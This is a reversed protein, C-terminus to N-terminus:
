LLHEDNMLDFITKVPAFTRAPVEVFVTNWWAMSGNWLGPLEMAKLKRGGKSKTSIFGADHDVFKKLDYPNGNHDLVGCVLDVPNFHTASQLIQVQGASNRDIQSTEVIQISKGKGSEEVWFPGGGPAGTNEVMGCVRLPRNLIGLLYEKKEEKTGNSVLVPPIVSLRKHIFAFLMELYVDDPHNELLTKIYGFIEEQLSVLLGGLAMKYKYALDKYRDTVVNDINKIFIIDGDLDSLNELLAGHGGPRFLLSGNEERFPMNCKDVAITDTSPKQCSYSIEYVAGDKEYMHLVTSIFEKVKKEHEPSVTFHIKIKGNKDKTYNFAEVLHEEFPTRTHSDYRHFPILGKPINSLNLGKEFLLYELITKVQRNKICEELVVNDEKMKQKLDDYFAYEGIKNIFSLLKEDIDVNDPINRLNDDSNLDNYAVLLLKVMRSAAGSAPVFKMSRGNSQAVSFVKVYKEIETGDLTIIGDNVTCPRVIKSFPMGKEFKKIQDLVKEPTMGHASIEELDTSTFLSNDM